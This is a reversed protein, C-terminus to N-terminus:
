PQAVSNGLWSAGLMVGPATIPPPDRRPPWGHSCACQGNQHHYEGQQSGRQSLCSRVISAMPMMVTPMAVVVAAMMAFLVLLVVLLVVLLLTMMFAATMLRSAMVLPATAVVQRTM